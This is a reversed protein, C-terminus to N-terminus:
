PCDHHTEACACAGFPGLREENGGGIVMPSSKYSKKEGGLISERRIKLLKTNPSDSAVHM